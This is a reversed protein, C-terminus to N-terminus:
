PQMQVKDLRIKKIKHKYRFNDQTSMDLITSTSALKDTQLLSTQMPSLVIMQTVREGWCAQHNQKPIM